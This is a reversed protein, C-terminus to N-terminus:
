ALIPEGRCEKVLHRVFPLSVKAILTTAVENGLMNITPAKRYIEEIAWVCLM